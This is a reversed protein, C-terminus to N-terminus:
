LLPGVKHSFLKQYYTVVERETMGSIFDVILRVREEYADASKLQEEYFPPFLKTGSENLSIKVESALTEFLERILRRQGFQVTALEPQKIVYHWTLQKLMEVQFQLPRDIVVCRLIEAPNEAVQLASVYATIFRTVMQWLSLRQEIAGTYRAGIINIFFYEDCVTEFAQEYREILKELGEANEFREDFLKGSQRKEKTEPDEDHETNRGFVESYFLDLENADKAAFRELPIQGACYFDVVDHVAYTIDDAWDMIEAELSKAFGGLAFGDRAFAFAAQESRYAGWKKVKEANEKYFWPYKLIAHLSARTLNLGLKIPLVQSGGGDSPVVNLPDGVM